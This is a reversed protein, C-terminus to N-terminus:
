SKMSDVFYKAQNSSLFTCIQQIYFSKSKSNKKINARNLINLIIIIYLNSYTITKPGCVLKSPKYNYANFCESSTRIITKFHGSWEM